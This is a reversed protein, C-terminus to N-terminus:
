NVIFYVLECFQEKAKKSKGPPKTLAKVEKREEEKAQAVLADRDRDEVEVSLVESYKDETLEEEIMAEIQEGTYLKLEFDQYELVIYLMMHLWILMTHCRVDCFTLWSM